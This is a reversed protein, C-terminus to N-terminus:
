TLIQTLATQLRGRDLNSGIIVVVTEDADSCPREYSDYTDRVGQVYM